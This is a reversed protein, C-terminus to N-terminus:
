DTEDEALARNKTSSVYKENNRCTRDACLEQPLGSNVCINEEVLCFDNCTTHNWIGEATLDITRKEIPVSSAADNRKIEKEKM